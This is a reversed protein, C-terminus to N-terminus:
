LYVKLSTDSEFDMLEDRQALKENLEVADVIEANDKLHSLLELPTVKTYGFNEDDLEQITVKPVRGIILDRLGAEAGEQTYFADLQSVLEATKLAITAHSDGNAIGPVTGPNAIKAQTLTADGTLQQFGDTDTVMWAHGHSGGGLISPVAQSAALIDKEFRVYDELSYDGTTIRRVEQSKIATYALNRTTAASITAAM